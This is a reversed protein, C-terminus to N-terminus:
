ATMKSYCTDGIGRERTHQKTLPSGCRGCQGVNIGYLAMAGIPDDVIKQLISEPRYIRQQRFEGPAGILQALVRHRTGFVIYFRIDNDETFLAYKGNDLKDFLEERPTGLNPQKLMRTLFPSMATRDLGAILLHYDDETLAEHEPLRVKTRGLAQALSMQKESPKGPVTNFCTRVKAVSEHEGKCNGCRM